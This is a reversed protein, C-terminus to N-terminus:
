YVVQQLQIDASEVRADTVLHCVYDPSLHVEYLPWATGEMAVQGDGLVVQDLPLSLGHGIAKIAAEKRTWYDYFARLPNAAANVQNWEADTMQRRFNALKLPQIKEIDIGIRCHRSFACLVYDGSHSINFDVPATLYPRGYNSYYLQHILEHGDFGFRHLGEILLLKGLLCVEGDRPQLYRNVKQQLDVPLQALYSQFQEKELSKGLISYLILAM